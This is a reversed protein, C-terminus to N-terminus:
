TGSRRACHECISAVLRGIDGAGLTLLLDGAQVTRDLWGSVQAPGDVLEVSELKKDALASAILASSVGPHPEESAAYVPLLGVCDALALADAFERAFHATRSFRHPQFLVVVRRGFGRAVELTALIETPHHGYDDLILVGGHEGKEECRRGVGTFGALGAQIQAWDLGLETGV